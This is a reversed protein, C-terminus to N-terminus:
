AHKRLTQSIVNVALSGPHINVHECAWRGEARALSFINKKIKHYKTTNMTTAHVKSCKLYEPLDVTPSIDCTTTGGPLTPYTKMAATKGNHSIPTDLSSYCELELYGLPTQMRTIFAVYCHM